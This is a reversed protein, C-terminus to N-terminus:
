AVARFTGNVIKGLERVGDIERVLRDPRSPDAHFMPIGASVKIKVGSRVLPPKLALNGPRSIECFPLKVQRSFM